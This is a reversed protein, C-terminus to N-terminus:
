AITLVLNSAAFTPTVNAAISQQTIKRVMGAGTTSPVCNLSGASLGLVVTDTGTTNVFLVPSVGTAGDGTLTIANSSFSPLTGGYETSYVVPDNASYGNAKISWYPSGTGIFVPIWTFNGLYDWAWMNGSSSADMMAFAIVSGWGAGTAQPFTIAAGNAITQPEGGAPAAFFTIMVVDGSTIANAANATLTITTGGVSSITGVFTGTTKDWVTGGAGTMGNTTIWAPVGGGITVTPSATTTGATTTAVGAVQVRSYGNGAVETFGSNADTGIATFLALYLATPWASTAPSVTPQGSLGACVAKAAIDSLGPM